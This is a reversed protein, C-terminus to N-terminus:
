SQYHGRTIQFLRGFQKSTMKANQTLTNKKVRVVFDMQGQSKNSRQSKSGQSVSISRSQILPTQQNKDKEFSFQNLNANLIDDKNQISNLKKVQSQSQNEISQYQKTDITQSLQELKFQYVESQKLQIDQEIKEVEVQFKSKKLLNTQHRLFISNNISISQEDFSNQTKFDESKNLTSYNNQNQFNNYQDQDEIQNQQQQGQASLRYRIIQQKQKANEERVRLLENKLEENNSQLQFLNDTQQKLQQNVDKLSACYILSKFKIIKYDNSRKNYDTKLKQNLNLQEKLKINLQEINKIQQANENKLTKTQEFLNKYSKDLNILKQNTRDWQSLADELKMKSVMEKLMMKYNNIKIANREVLFSKDKNGLKEQENFKIELLRYKRQCEEYKVRIDAIENIFEGIRQNDDNIVRDSFLQKTVLNNNEFVKVKYLSLIDVLEKRQSDFENQLAELKDRENILEQRQNDITEQLQEIKKNNLLEAAAFEQLNLKIKNEQENLEMTLTHLRQQSFSLCKELDIITEEKGELSNQLLEVQAKEKIFLEDLHIKAIKMQQINQNLALIENQQIEIRQVGFSYEVQMKQFKKIEKDHEEILERNEKQLQLISSKYGKELQEFSDISIKLKQNETQLDFKQQKLIQNENTLKLNVDLLDQYNRQYKELEQLKHINDEKFKSFQMSLQNFQYEYNMSNSQDNASNKTLKSIKIENIQLKYQKEDLQRKLNEITQKLHSIENVRIEKEEILIELQKQSKMLDNSIKDYLVRIEKFEEVIKTYEQGLERYVSTIQNIRYEFKIRLAVEEEFATNSQHFDIEANDRQLKLVYNQDTTDQLMNQLKNIEEKAQNEIVKFQTERQVLTQNLEEIKQQSEQQIQNITFYFDGKAVYELLIGFVKWISATLQLNKLIEHLMEYFGVTYVFMSRYLRGVDEDKVGASKLSNRDLGLKSLSIQKENLCAEKLIDNIWREIGNQEVISIPISADQHQKFQRSGLRQRTDITSAQFSKRFIDNM